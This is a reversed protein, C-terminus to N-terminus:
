SREAARRLLLERERENRTLSAAREFEARAEATRGLRALLDGRVRKRRSDNACTLATVGM